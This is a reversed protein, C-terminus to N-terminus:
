RERDVTEALTAFAALSEKMDSEFTRVLVLRELLWGLPRIRPFATLEVTHDLVTGGNGNPRTQITLEVPGFPLRGLHVQENPPDFATVRWRSVSRKPGLRSVEEYEAGAEIREGAVLRAEEVISVWEPYREYDAMLAFVIEPPARLEITNHIKPM